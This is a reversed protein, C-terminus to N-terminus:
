KPSVEVELHTPSISVVSKGLPALDEQRPNDDGIMHGLRM